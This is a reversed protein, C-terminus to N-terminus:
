ESCGELTARRPRERPGYGYQQLKLRLTRLGIGLRAATEKRRGECEALTREILAREMDRLMPGDSEPVCVFEALQENLEFIRERAQRLEERLRGNERRLDDPSRM